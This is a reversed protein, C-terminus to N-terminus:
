EWRLIPRQCYMLKKEKLLKADGFQRQLKEYDAEYKKYDFHWMLQMIQKPTFNLVNSVLEEYVYDRDDNDYYAKLLRYEIYDLEKDAYKKVRYDDTVDNITSAKKLSERDFVGISPSKYLSANMELSAAVSHQMLEKDIEYNFYGDYGLQQVIDLLDRRKRIDGKFYSYWDREKLDKLDFSVKKQLKNFDNDNHLSFIDLARDLFYVDVYGKRGAYSAAYIFSSTIYFEECTKLTPNLARYGHYYEKTLKNYIHENLKM